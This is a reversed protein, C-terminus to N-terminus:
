ILAKITTVDVLDSPVELISLPEDIHLGFRWTM